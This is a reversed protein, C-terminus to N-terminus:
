TKRTSSRSGAINYKEFYARDVANRLFRVGIPYGPDSGPYRPRITGRPNKLFVRQWCKDECEVIPVFVSANVMFGSASSAIIPLVQAFAYATAKMFFVLVDEPFRRHPKM